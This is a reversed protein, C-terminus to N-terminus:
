GAAAGRGVMAEHWRSPFARVVRLAEQVGPDALVADTLEEGVYPDELAATLRAAWMARSYEGRKLLEPVAEAYTATGYLARPDPTEAFHQRQWTAPDSSGYCHRGLLQRVARTRRDSENLLWLGLCSVSLTGATVATFVMKARPKRLSVALFLCVIGVVFMGWLWRSAVARAVLGPTFRIPWRQSERAAETAAHHHLARSVHVARFPLIPLFLFTVCEVADFDEAEGGWGVRGQGACVSIGLGHFWLM